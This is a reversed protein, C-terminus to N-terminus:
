SRGRLGAWAMLGSSAGCILSAISMPWTTADPLLVVHGIVVVALVIALGALALSGFCFAEAYPCPKAEVLHMQTENNAEEVSLWRGRRESPHLHSEAKRHIDTLWFDADTDDNLIQTTPM